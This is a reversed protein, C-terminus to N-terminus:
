VAQIAAIFGRVGGLLNVMRTLNFCTALISAEARVGERGRLLFQGFGLVKKIYGFPHEVRAKRREYIRRIEPQDFRKSVAERLEELVHRTITRGQKSRTCKGFHPCSRCTRAKEIVYDRKQKAKDQFRSFILRQGQPCLYFDSDADYTFKSKDFPGVEKHSAQVQSPVVVTKEASEIKAIEVIDSYGADACATKCECGLDAEAGSIQVALQNYDNAESVVDAHVILGNQEDVVTQMSYGSHTGQPSKVVTSEPDVRNVRREKGDKTKEGRESFEALANEISEKLKSGQLLEKPMTVLSGLHSEGSDVQECEDLLRRIHEDIEKLKQQYWKKKHLNARGANARLKTSDVFLVNGEILGIKLCLRACCGLAKQLAGKNKRRFEAITKHDPKLQKMLWIFSLNNHVERELKRSSKVGYSYGYLLLKLMCRPDYEKNGVKRADLEIGLDRFDLGDVFADYVRVPHERSVYQDLTPPLVMMQNRDTGFRYAM